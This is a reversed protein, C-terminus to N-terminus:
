RGGSKDTLGMGQRLDRAVKEPWDGPGSGPWSPTGPNAAICEGAVPLSCVALGALDPRRHYARGSVSASGETVLGAVSWLPCRRWGAQYTPHCFATSSPDSKSIWAAAMWPYIYPWPLADGVRFGWCTWDLGTWDTGARGAASRLEARQGKPKKGEDEM